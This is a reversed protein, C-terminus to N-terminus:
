VTSLTTGPFYHLLIERYGLGQEGYLAAGKRSLGYGSGQGRCTFTVKEDVTVTFADVPLGMAEAFADGDVAREGIRVTEVRGNEGDTLVIEWREGEPCAISLKEAALAAFESRTFAVSSVEGSEPTAVSALYPYGEMGKTENPSSDHTLALAYGERYCLVENKVADVAHEATKRRAAAEESGWISALMAADAYALGHSPSDCISYDDSRCYGILCHVRSRLAVAQAKLSETPTDSTNYAALTGILLERMTLEIAKGEEEHRYLQLSSEDCLTETETPLQGFLLATLVPLASGILLCFILLLVEKYSRRM